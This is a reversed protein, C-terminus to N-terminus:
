FRSTFRPDRDSIISVPVEQLRVIETVYLEALRELSFDTRVPIFHTFKTLRDVIVWIADKKESIFSIGICFGDHCAGIEVGSDDSAQWWYMQKLNGHMKNSGHHVSLSSNYAEELIKKVLDLNKPICIRGKFYLSDNSGIQFDLDPTM